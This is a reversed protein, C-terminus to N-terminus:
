GEADELPNAVPTSSLAAEVAADAAKLDAHYAKETKYIDIGGKVAVGTGVVVAGTAVPHEIATEKASIFLDKLYEFM